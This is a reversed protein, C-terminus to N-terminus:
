LNFKTQNQYRILSILRRQGVMGFVYEVGENELCNIIVDSVKM